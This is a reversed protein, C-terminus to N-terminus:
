YRGRNRRAQWILHEVEALEDATLEVWQYGKKSRYFWVEVDNIQKPVEPSHRGGPEGPDYDYVALVPMSEVFMNPRDITIQLEESDRVRRKGFYTTVEPSAIYEPRKDLMALRIQWSISPSFNM